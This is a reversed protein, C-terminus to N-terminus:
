AEARSGIWYELRTKLVELKIPKSIYDDMGVELCKNRDGVMAHATLGIIVTQQHLDQDQRFLRATEYGDLIPMQCDMLVIDYTCTALQTLAEQGNSVVDASYGLYKLMRIILQQNFENDEVVLIRTKSGVATPSM